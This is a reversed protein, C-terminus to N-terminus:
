DGHVQSIITLITGILLKQLEGELLLLVFVNTAALTYTSFTLFLKGSGSALM